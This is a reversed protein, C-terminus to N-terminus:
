VNNKPLELKPFGQQVEAKGFKQNLKLKAPKM